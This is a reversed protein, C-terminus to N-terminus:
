GHIKFSVSVVGGGVASNSVNINGGHNKCLVNAIHLGLGINKTVIDRKSKYFPDLVNKMEKIDFGKGDDIVKFFIFKNECFIEIKVNKNAYRIANSIINDLVRKVLEPDFYLKEIMDYKKVVLKKNNNEVFVTYNKNINNIFKTIDVEFICPEINDLKELVNINNIYDEIRTINSNILEITSKLKNINIENSIDKNIMYMHGKIITLPTRLDHSFSRYMRTKEEKAKCEIQHRHLIEKRMKEFGKCLNGMEDNTNYLISIDLDKNTIREVGKMMTTLPKKLKTNYFIFSILIMILSFVIIPSLYIIDQVFFIFKEKTKTINNNTNTRELQVTGSESVFIYSANRSEKDIDFLILILISIILASLVGIITLIFFAKKISINLYWKKIKDM